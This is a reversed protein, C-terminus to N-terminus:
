KAVKALMAVKNPSNPVIIPSILANVATALTSGESFALKNDALIETAMFVVANPKIAAIGSKNINVKKCVLVVSITSLISIAETFNTLRIRAALGLSTLGTVLFGAGFGPAYTIIRCFM